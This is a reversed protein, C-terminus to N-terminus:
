EFLNIPAFRVRNLALRGSFNGDTFLLGANLNAFSDDILLLTVFHKLILAYYRVFNLHLLQSSVIPDFDIWLLDLGEAFRYRRLM